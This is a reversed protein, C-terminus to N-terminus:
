YYEFVKIVHRVGSIQRVLDTVADGEAQTLLGMLYINGREAVVKVRLPDFDPIDIMTLKFKIEAVLAANQTREGLSATSGIELENVVRRVRDVQAVHQEARTKLAQNGTQGTILAVMNYSTINIRSNELNPDGAIAEAAKFEITQDEVFVGLTRRDHLATATAAAGGVMVGACGQLIGSLLITIIPLIIKHM